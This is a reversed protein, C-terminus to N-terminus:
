PPMGSDLIWSTMSRTPLSTSGTSRCSSTPAAHPSLARAGIWYRREGCPGCARPGRCSQIARLGHLRRGAKASFEPSYTMAADPQKTAGVVVYEGSRARFRVICRGTPETAYSQTFTITTRLPDPTGAARQTGALGAERGLSRPWNTARQTPSLATCRDLDFTPRTNTSANPFVGMAYRVINRVSRIALRRRVPSSGSGTGLWSGGARRGLTRTIRTSRGPIRAHESGTGVTELGLIRSQGFVERRQSGSRSSRAVRRPVM